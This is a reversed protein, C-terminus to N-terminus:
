INETKGDFVLLVLELDGAETSGEVDTLDAADIQFVANGVNEIATNFSDQLTTLQEVIEDGVYPLEEYKTFGDGIKLKVIELKTSDSGINPIFEVAPEGKKLVVTKVAEWETQTGNLLLIRTNLASSNVNDAM